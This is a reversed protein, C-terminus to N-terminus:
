QSFQAHRIRRYVTGGFSGYSKSSAVPINGVQEYLGSERVVKSLTNAGPWDTRTTTMLVDPPNALLAQKFREANLDLKILCASLNNLDNSPPLLGTLPYLAYMFGSISLTSNPPVVKRIAESALLYNSQEIANSPWTGSFTSQLANHTAPWQSTLSIFKPFLSLVCIVMALAALRTASSSVRGNLTNKWGLAALGALGPLCVAFNYPYGIKSAPELLPVMAACAWFMLRRLNTQCKHTFTTVFFAVTGMAGLVLAVTAEQASLVGNAVFLSVRQDTVSAYVVSADRYADVLTVFGGRAGLIVATVLLASATAGLAYRLCARWGYSMVVALAGVVLFPLFTERLLVALATLAGAGWWASYTGIMSDQGLRLALFLPVYAAFISNKFGCQIFLPQNMIFLFVLSILAGAVHSGSEKEIVRCLLWSAVAAVFLDVLRLLIMHNAPLGFVWSVLLPYIMLTGAHPLGRGADLNAHILQAFYAYFGEDTTPLGGVVMLRPLVTAVLIVIATLATSASVHQRVSPVQLRNALQNM